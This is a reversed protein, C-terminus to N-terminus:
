LTSLFVNLSQISKILSANAMADSISENTIVSPLSIIFRELDIYRIPTYIMSTLVKKM